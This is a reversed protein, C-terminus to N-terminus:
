DGLVNYSFRIETVEQRVVADGKVIKKYIFDIVYQPHDESAYHLDYLDPRMANDEYEWGLADIVDELPSGVGIGLVRTGGGSVTVGSVFETEDAFGCKKTPYFLEVEVQPYRLVKIKVGECKGWGGEWVSAPEGLSARVRAETDGFLHRMTEAFYFLRDTRGDYAPGVIVPIGGSDLAIYRGFVFGTEGGQAVACWSGAQVDVTETFGAVFLVEVRTGKNLTDLVMGSTAPEARLNARDGTITANEEARVFLVALFLFLCFFIGCWSIRNALRKM